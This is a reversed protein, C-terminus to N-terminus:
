PQIQFASCTFYFVVEDGRQNEKKESQSELKCNALRWRNMELPQSGGTYTASEGKNHRFHNPLVYVKWKRGWRRSGQVFARSTANGKVCAKTRWTQTDWVKERATRPSTNPWKPQPQSPIPSSSSARAPSSSSAWRSRLMLMSWQPSWSAVPYWLLPNLKEQWRRKRQRQEMSWGTWNIM